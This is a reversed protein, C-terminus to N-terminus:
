RDLVEVAMTLVTSICFPTIVYRAVRFSVARLTTAETSAGIVITPTLDSHFQQAGRRVSLGVISPFKPTTAPLVCDNLEIREVDADDSQTMDLNYKALALFHFLLGRYESVKGIRLVEPLTVATKSYCSGARDKTSSLAMSMRGRLYQQNICEGIDDKPFRWQRGVFMM